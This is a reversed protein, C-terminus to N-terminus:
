RPPQIEIGLWRFQGNAGELQSYDNWALTYRGILNRENAAYYSGEIGWRLTGTLTRGEHIRFHQDRTLRSRSPPAWLPQHNTLMIAFGNTLTRDDACLRELRAVDFIFNRRALDDAAHERLRFRSM